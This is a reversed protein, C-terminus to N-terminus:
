NGVTETRVKESKHRKTEEHRKADSKEHRARRRRRGRKRLIWDSKSLTRVGDKRVDSDRKRQESSRVSRRLVRRSVRGHRTRTKGDTQQRHKTTSVAPRRDSRDRTRPLSTGGRRIEGHHVREIRRRHDRERRFIGALSRSLLPLFIFRVNRDLLRHQRPQIQALRSFLVSPLVDHHIKHFPCLPLDKTVCYHTLYNSHIRRDFTM